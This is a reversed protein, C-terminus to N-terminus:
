GRFWGDPVQGNMFHLTNPAGPTSDFADRPDDATGERLGETPSWHPREGPLLGHLGSQFAGIVFTHGAVRAGLFDGLQAAFDQGARAGFTECTRFWVLAREGSLRERLDTLLGHHAHGSRMADASLIDNAIYVKGWKGHGWFQVEDIPESGKQSVLWGLASAWDQAGFVADVRGMTRYLKAGTAWATRLLKEGAKETGDYILLRKGM